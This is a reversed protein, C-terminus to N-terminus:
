FQFSAKSDPYNLSISQRKGNVTIHMVNIQDNTFDHLLNNTINLKKVFAVNTVSFFCHASEKKKQYGVYNLRVPKEDVVLMLHKNIYDPIYKDFLAKDKGSSIDLLTKYNKKITQEFDDSFFKCSIELTKEKGNLNVETVAIHFPHLASLSMVKDNKEAVFPLLLFCMCTYLLSAM